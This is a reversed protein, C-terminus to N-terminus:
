VTETARRVRSAAGCLAAVGEKGLMSRARRQASEWAPLAREVRKRGASTVSLLKSRGDVGERERVWGRGILRELNRSLTSRDMCLAGGLGTATGEGRVSLAVLLSMQTARLGHPRLAADYVGCLVRDLLRVRTVLCERAVREVTAGQRAM